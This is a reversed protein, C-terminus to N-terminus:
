FFHLFFETWISGVLLINQLHFRILHYSFTLNCWHIQWIMDHFSRNEARFLLLRYKLSYTHINKHKIYVQADYLYSFFSWKFHFMVLSQYLVSIWINTKIKLKLLDLFNEKALPLSPNWLVNREIIHM